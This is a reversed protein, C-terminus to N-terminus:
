QLLESTKSEADTETEKLEQIDQIAQKQLEAQEERCNPCL